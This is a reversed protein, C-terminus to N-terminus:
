LIPGVVHAAAIRLQKIKDHRYASLLTRARRSRDRASSAALETTVARDQVRAPQELPDHRGHQRERKSRQSKERFEVVASERLREVIGKPLPDRDAQSESKLAGHHPRALPLMALTAVQDFIDDALLALIISRMRGIARIHDQVIDHHVSTGARTRGGCWLRCFVRDTPKHSVTCSLGWCHGAQLEKAIVLVKGADLGIADAHGRWRTRGRVIERGSARQTM